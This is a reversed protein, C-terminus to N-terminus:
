SLPARRFPVLARVLSGLFSETGLTIIGSTPVRCGPLPIVLVQGHTFRSRPSEAELAILFLNSNDILWLSCYKTVFAQASQCWTDPAALSVEFMGDRVGVPWVMQTVAGMKCIYESLNLSIKLYSIAYHFTLYWAWTVGTIHLPSHSLLLFRSLPPVSLECGMSPSCYCAFHKIVQSMRFRQSPPEFVQM